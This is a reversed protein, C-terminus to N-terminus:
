AAARHEKGHCLSCLWKVDLPKSYDHHHAHVTKQSGCEECPKRTLRGTQIAYAVAHRAERKGPNADWYRQLSQMRTERHRRYYLRNAEAYAERNQEAHRRWIAKRKKPNNKAWEAAKATACPKCLSSPYHKGNHSKRKSFKDVPLTIRCRTCTKETSPAPCSHEDGTNQGCNVCRHRIM